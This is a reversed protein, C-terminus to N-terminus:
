KGEFTLIQPDDGAATVTARTLKGHADYEYSHSLEVEGYVVKECQVLRGAGDYHARFYTGRNGLAEPGLEEALALPLAVGRYTLFYRPTETPIGANM